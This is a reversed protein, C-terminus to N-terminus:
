LIGLKSFLDKANKHETVMGAKVQYLSVLTEIEFQSKKAVKAAKVAKNALSELKNLEKTTM